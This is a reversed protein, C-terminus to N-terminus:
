FSTPYNQIHFTEADTDLCVYHFIGRDYDNGLDIAVENARDRNDYLGYFFREPTHEYNSCIETYVIYKM